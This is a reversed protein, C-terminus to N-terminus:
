GGVALVFLKSIAPLMFLIPLIYWLKNIKQDNAWSLFGMVYSMAVGLWFLIFIADSQSM